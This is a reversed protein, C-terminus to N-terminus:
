HADGGSVVHGTDPPHSLVDQEEAVSAEAPEHALDSLDIDQPQTM